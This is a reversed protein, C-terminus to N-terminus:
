VIQCIPYYKQHDCYVDYAEYGYGSYLLMCNLETNNRPYGTRFIFDEVTNQTNAWYWHGERGIDTGGVWWKKEGEHDELMSLQMMIFAQQEGTLIEVLVAREQAQCYSSAELWTLPTASNFLLCGMNVWTAQVWHPPCVLDECVVGGLYIITTFILAKKSFM